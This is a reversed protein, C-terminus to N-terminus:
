SNPPTYASGATPPTIQLSSITENGNQDLGVNAGFIRVGQRNVVVCDKKATFQIQDGIQFDDFLSPSKRPHPIITYTVLPIGLVVQQAVAYPVLIDQQAGTLTIYQSFNGYLEQSDPDYIPGIPAGLSSIYVNNQTQTPDEQWQFDKLNNPGWNYGLIIDLRKTFLSSDVLNLERTVPDVNIDPGDEIDSLEQIAPGLMTGRQYYRNRVPLTQGPITTVTGPQILLPTPVQQDMNQENVMRMLGFAIEDTVTGLGGNSFDAASAAWYMEYQWKEIWGVCNVTITGADLAGEIGWIPGSWMTEGNRLIKICKRVSGRIDNLDVRDLIKYAMKDSTRIQFSATGARNWQPQWDQSKLNSMTGIKSLPAFPDDFSPSECLDWEYKPGQSTM